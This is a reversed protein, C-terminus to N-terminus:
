RSQFDLAIVKDKIVILILKDFDITLVCWVNFDILQETLYQVSMIGFGLEQSYLSPPDHM